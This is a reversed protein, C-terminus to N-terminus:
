LILTPGLLADRLCYISIYLHCRSDTKIRFDWLFALINVRVALLSPHPTEATHSTYTTHSIGKVIMISLQVLEPLVRISENREEEEGKGGEGEGKKKM